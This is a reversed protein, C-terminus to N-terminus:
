ANKRKRRRPYMVTKTATGRVGTHHWGHEYAYKASPPMLDALESANFNPVISIRKHKVYDEEKIAKPCDEFMMDPNLESEEVPIPNAKFAKFINKLESNDAQGDGRCSACKKGEARPQRTPRLPTDCIICNAFAINDRAVQQGTRNKRVMYIGTFLPNWKMLCVM